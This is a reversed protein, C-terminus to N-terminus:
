VSLCGQFDFSLDVIAVSFCGNVRVVKLRPFPITYRNARM